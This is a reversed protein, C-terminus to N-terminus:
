AAIGVARAAAIGDGRAAEAAAPTSHLSCDFDGTESTPWVAAWRPYGHLSFGELVAGDDPLQGDEITSYEPLTRGFRLDYEIVDSLEHRSFAGEARPHTIRM